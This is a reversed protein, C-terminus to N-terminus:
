GDYEDAEDSSSEEDALLRGKWFRGFKRRSRLKTAFYDDEQGENLKSALHKNHKMQKATRFKPAKGAKSCKVLGQSKGRGRQRQTRSSKVRFNVNFQKVHERCAFNVAMKKGMRVIDMLGQLQVSVM